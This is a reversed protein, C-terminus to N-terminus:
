ELEIATNRGTFTTLYFIFSSSTLKRLKRFCHWGVNADKTRARKKKKRERAGALFTLNRITPIDFSKKWTYLKGVKDEFIWNTSFSPIFLDVVRRKTIPRVILIHHSKTSLLSQHELKIVLIHFVTRVTYLSCQIVLFANSHLFLKSCCRNRHVLCALYLEPM